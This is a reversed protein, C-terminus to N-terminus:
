SHKRRRFFGLISDLYSQCCPLIFLTLVTSSLLGALVTVALSQRLEAGDGFGLAMPLLGLLTTLTTMIVPRFRRECGLVLSDMLSLGQEKGENDRVQNVCDLLVIANNVVIGALMVIGIISMVNFSSGIADLGFVVGVGALPITLMILFPQLFSEFISAMVMYVLGISLLLAFALDGFAERRQEEEGTYEILYRAPVRMESLLGQAEAIADSLRVGEAFDAMVYVVRQQGERVVERPGREITFSALSALRVLSGTSTRFTMNRLTDLSPEAYDVEVRLDVDGAERKVQTAVEGDLRQRIVSAIQRTDLGYQALLDKDLSMRVEPAGDLINTRVNVLSDSLSLRGQIEQALRKLVDTELGSVVIQFPPGSTGILSQINGQGTQFTAKVDPARELIPKFEGILEQSGVGALNSELMATTPQDTNKLRLFVEATNPGDPDETNANVLGEPEGILTFVSELIPNFRGIQSNFSQTVRDTNEIPTGSPLIVRIAMQDVDTSPLFEAAIEKGKVVTIYLMLIGFLVVIWRLKLCLKLSKGYLGQGIKKVEKSLSETPKSYKLFRSAATPICLLAVFLSALLSYTVTLAQEKFLLGAVGQVFVIPLFVAVTTLTSAILAGTVENAGQISAEIPATGRERIRFINELVVIANDVLMGTGLALGGLSMLNLSLGQFYILNFTAVISLPIAIAIIVTSWFDRLFVLLVVVALLGGVVANNRVERIASSIFISQDSAVEIEWGNPLIDNTAEIEERIKEAVMVTNSESERYFSLGVAQDDNWYVISRPEKPTYSVAGVEDLIVAIGDSRGVVTQKIEELDAFQGSAKLLYRQAGEEVYGGVSEANERNLASVVGDVELGYKLLLAEDLDVRIEREMGGSLVVNAIGPLREFRPKLTQEAARLVSERDTWEPATLAAVIVPEANPDYRLVSVSEIEDARDRQLDSAAKKVELFAYELRTDWTFDVIVVASDSRSISKVGSVGRISFLSREIRESIRKEVESPGLGTTSVSVTIRPAQIDPFLNTPLKSVSIMGLVIIGLFLMAVKVPSHVALGALGRM